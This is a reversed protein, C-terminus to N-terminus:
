DPDLDVPNKIFDDVLEDVSEINQIKKNKRFIYDYNKDYSQKNVSRYKDGKGAQRNSTPQNTVM